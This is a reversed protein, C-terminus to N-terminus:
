DIKLKKKMNKITPILLEREYREKTIRIEQKPTEFGCFPCGMWKIKFYAIRAAYKPLRKRYVVEKDLECGCKPCDM